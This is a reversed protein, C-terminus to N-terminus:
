FPQCPVGEPVTNTYDADDAVESDEAEVERNLWILHLYVTALSPHNGHFRLCVVKSVKKM